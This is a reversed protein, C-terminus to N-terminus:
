ADGGSADDAAAAADDGSADDSAMADGGGGGRNPPKREPAGTAASDIPVPLPGADIDPEPATEGLRSCIKTGWVDCVLGRDCDSTMACATGLGHDDKKCAVTMTAAGLVLTPLLFSALRSTSFM